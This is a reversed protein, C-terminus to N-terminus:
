ALRLHVTEAWKNEAGCIATKGSVLDAVAALVTQGEDQPFGDVTMAGKGLTGSVWTPGVTYRRFLTEVITYEYDEEEVSIRFAVFPRGHEDEGRMISASMDDARVFDIYGTGGGRATCNNLDLVPLAEFAAEGGLAEILKPMITDSRDDVLPKHEVVRGGSIVNVAPVIHHEPFRSM